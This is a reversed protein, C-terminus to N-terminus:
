PTRRESVPPESWGVLVGESGSPTAYVAKGPRQPDAYVDHAIVGHQRRGDLILVPALSGVIRGLTGLGQSQQTWSRIDAAAIVHLGIDSAYEVYDALGLVPNNMMGWSSIDDIVVFIRRGTWFQRNLMDHQKAGPPPMRGAFLARLQGVAEAIDTSTYAYVTLWEEPVVGILKRRPDFLAITAEEPRYRTMIARCIARLFATRGSKGQGVAVVHSEEAFDIYAPALTTESLGFPVMTQPLSPDARAIVEQLPVREPLRLVSAARDVGAVRAVLAGVDEAEVRGTPLDLQPVGVMFHHGGTTVGRGPTDPVERAPQRTGIRPVQSEQWDTLVMELRQRCENKLAIRLGSIWSTHTVVVRVGYNRARMLAVIADAQQGMVDCFNAWGDVVLVVDGGAVRRAAAYNRDGDRRLGGFKARRVRDMSLGERAFIQEREAVIGQVTAILRNVGERDLLPAVAAVHPLGALAALEPGSAAICYFQVRDPRYMLSGATVMTMVANTAGRKPACVILANDNLLDLCHVDQRHERPRDELAIPMLLGDNDGYDVDWSKGRLRAVLDDATPPDGLPPLWLDRPPWVGQAQTTDIAIDSLKRIQRGSEARVAAPPVPVPLPPQEPVALLGDTDESESATFLRPAFWTGARRLKVDAATTVKPVYEAGSFFFRFERPQRQAVRLYATGEAGADPLHAAVKTGIAERSDEERGTRAAITFGLLKRVNRLKQTDVTQGVLQLFMHYARGLRVIRWFLEQYKPGWQEDSLLEPYEDCIIFLAPVPPLSPDTLRKQNYATLDPCDPLAACLAGRRDLEGDLAEYMRGVLHRESALNSVSAVVHPFRELTGAASKLKFDTFVVNVVEPSHTLALSSVETIIGESKGAGTTGIFLSHMGMGQQSGEKLDFEVVQGSPDVGVPFRLWDRGQTRRPAWMRDLDMREPDSVGLADFLTRRDLDNTAAVTGVGPARWRAMARAFREAEAVSMADPTAYFAADLEDGPRRLANLLAPDNAGLRKHLAGKILRYTAADDFGVWSRASFGSASPPAPPVSPALRIFCTGDYGSNGTLGAWDEPTACHDDVIVRLPLASAGDGGHPGAPPPSWESRPPEAEDLFAELTAPSSFMLRREGCGDRQIQHQMHPLWKAWEWQSPAASVVIIQLDAPSHFAALQCLMARATARVEDLEGVLSLGPFRRLWITKPIDDIYEQEILFKRLAHGTAPEIHAADPIKPKDIQMALAVKGLGVRVVAFEESRPNREWMRVSGVAGVLRSPEWHFHTRHEWQKRRQVDVEDRVEDLRRFSNRRHQTLESQSMKNAAGRGRLLTGVLGFAMMGGFLGYTGFSRMGSVYMSIIFGVVGVVLTIPLVIAWVSRQPPIPANIPPDVAIKGGGTAPPDKREGPPVFPHTTVLNRRVDSL